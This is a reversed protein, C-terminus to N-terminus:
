YESSTEINGLRCRYTEDDKKRIYRGKKDYVIEYGAKNLANFLCKQWEWEGTEIPCTKEWKEWKKCKLEM